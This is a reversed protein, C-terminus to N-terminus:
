PFAAKFSDQAFAVKEPFLSSQELPKLSKVMYGILRLSNEGDSLILKHERKEVKHQTTDVNRDAGGGWSIGFFSAGGSGGAKWHNEYDYKWHQSSSFTLTMGRVIILNTPYYLLTGSEGLFRQFLEPNQRIVENNNILDPDFWEGFSIPVAILGKSQVNLSTVHSFEEKIKETESTEGRIKGIGFFGSGGARASWSTDKTHNNISERTITSDIGGQVTTEISSIPMMASVTYLNDFIPSVDDALSAFYVPGFLKREHEPFITDPYKPYRMRVAGSTALAFADSIERHAPNKFTEASLASIFARLRNQAERLSKLQNKYPYNASWHQFAAVDSPNQMTAGAYSQWDQQFRGLLSSIETDINSMELRYNNIKTVSDQSLEKTEVLSMAVALLNQMSKSIRLASNIKVSSDSIGAPEISIDSLKSIVGLSHWQDKTSISVPVATAQLQFKSGSEINGLQAKIISYFHDLTAEFNVLPNEEVVPM